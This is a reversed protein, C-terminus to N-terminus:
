KVFIKRIFIVLLALFTYPYIFFYFTYNHIDFAVFIAIILLQFGLGFFSVLTLYWSPLEKTNIANKDLLYILYDQWGYILLYMKHLVKMLLVNDRAYPKPEEMEFIRSTLDGNVQHRKILYYYNFISGQLQFLLLALLMLWINLEFVHSISYLLLANIIFDFVSDLYRGVMSPENRRRAIEGDAADLMSKLLILCSALILNQDTYILYSALVGVILFSVTITYAGIKTPMLLKVLALAFPRAYDSVDIFSKNKPLKTM